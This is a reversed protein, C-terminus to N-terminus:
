LTCVFEAYSVGADDLRGLLADTAAQMGERYNSHSKEIQCLEEYLPIVKEVADRDPTRRSSHYGIINGADDFSPTVHAYVWYHDGNKCLNIVYAFIESGSQITDWLLKFVCGPMQPHRILNHPAGLLEAETFGSIRVFVQNAYRIIGKLDTKSVIIEDDRFTQERGTPTVTPRAM